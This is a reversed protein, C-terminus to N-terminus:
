FHLKHGLKEFARGDDGFASNITHKMCLMPQRMLNRKDPSLSKRRAALAMFLDPKFKHTFQRVQLAFPATM